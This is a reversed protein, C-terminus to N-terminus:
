ERRAKWARFDDAEQIERRPFQDVLRREEETLLLTAGALGERSFLDVGLDDLRQALRVLGESPSPGERMWVQMAEHEEALLGLRRDAEDLAAMDGSARAEAGLIRAVSVEMGLGALYSTLMRSGEKYSRGMRDAAELLSRAREREGGLRLARALQAAKRVLERFCSRTRNPFGSIVGMKELPNLPGELAERVDLWGLEAVGTREQWPPLEAAAKLFGEGDEGRGDAFAAWARLWAVWPDKPTRLAQRALLAELRFAPTGDGPPMGQLATRILKDSVAPNAPLAEAARDWFATAAEGAMGQSLYALAGAEWTEDGPHAALLAALKALTGPHQREYDEGALATLLALWAEPSRAGKAEPAPEAFPAPASTEASPGPAPAAQRVGAEPLRSPVVPSPPVPAAPPPRFRMGVYGALLCLAVGGLWFGM